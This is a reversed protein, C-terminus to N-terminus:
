SEKNESLKLQPHPPDYILREYLRRGTYVTHAKRRVKVNIDRRGGVPRWKYPRASALLYTSLVDDGYNVGTPVGSFTM